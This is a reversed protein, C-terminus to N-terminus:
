SYLCRAVKGVERVKTTGKDALLPCLQNHLLKQGAGTKSLTVVDLIVVAAIVPRVIKLQVDICSFFPPPMVAAISDLNAAHQRDGELHTPDTNMTSYSHSSKPVVGAAMFGTSIVLRWTANCTRFM